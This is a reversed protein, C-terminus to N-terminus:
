RRASDLWNKKFIALAERKQGGPLSRIKALEGEPSFVGEIPSTDKLRERFDFDLLQDFDKQKLRGFYEKVKLAKYELFDKAREFVEKAPTSPRGSKKEPDLQPSSEFGNM